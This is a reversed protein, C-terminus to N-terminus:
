FVGFIQLPLWRRLIVTIFTFSLTINLGGSSRGIECGGLDGLGEAGHGFLEYLHQLFPSLGCLLTLLGLLYQTLIAQLKLLRYDHM